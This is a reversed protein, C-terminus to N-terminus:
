PVRLTIKQVTMQDGEMHAFTIHPKPYNSAFMKDNDVLMRSAIFSSNYSAQKNREVILPMFQEKRYENGANGEDQMARQVDEQFGKVSFIGLAQGKSKEPTEEEGTKIM